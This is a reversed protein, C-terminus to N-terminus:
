VSDLHGSLILHCIWKIFFLQRQHMDQKQLQVCLFYTMSIDVLWFLIFLFNLSDSMYNNNSKYIYSIVYQVHFTQGLPNSLRSSMRLQPLYPHLKHAPPLQICFAKNCPTFEWRYLHPISLRKRVHISM